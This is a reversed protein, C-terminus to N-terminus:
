RGTDLQKMIQPYFESLWKEAKKKREERQRMGRESFDWISTTEVGQAELEHLKKLKPLMRLVKPFLSCKKKLCNGEAIIQTCTKGKPKPKGKLKSTAHEDCKKM